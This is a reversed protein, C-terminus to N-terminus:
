PADIASLVGALSSKADAQNIPGYDRFLDAFFFHSSDGSSQVVYTYNCNVTISEDDDAARILVTSKGAFRKPSELHRGLAFEGGVIGTIGIKGASDRLMAAVFQTASGRQVSRTHDFNLAVTSVPTHPLIEDFIRATFERIQRSKEVSTTQIEWRDQLCKINLDAISFQAFAPTCIVQQSRIALEAEEESLLDVIQYWKPHHIRPNMNGLVVVGFLDSDKSM